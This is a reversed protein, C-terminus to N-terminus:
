PSKVSERLLVTPIFFFLAMVVIVVVAEIDVPKNFILPNIVLFATLGIFLLSAQIYCALINSMGFLNKRLFGIAAPIWILCIMIDSISVLMDTLMAEGSTYQIIMKIGRYLFGIGFALLPMSYIVRFLTKMEKGSFSQKMGELNKLIFLGVGGALCIISLIRTILPTMLIFVPICSYIIFLFMARELSENPAKQRYLFRILLYIGFIVANIINALFLEEYVQESIYADAHLVAGLVSLIFFLLHISHEFFRRM